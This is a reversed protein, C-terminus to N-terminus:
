NSFDEAAKARLAESQSAVDKGQSLAETLHANARKLAQVDVKGSGSQDALAQAERKFVQAADDMGSASSQNLSNGSNAAKQGRWLAILFSVHQRWAPLMHDIASNIKSLLQRNSEEMLEMSGIAQRGIQLSLSLDVLRANLDRLLEPNVQQSEMWRSGAVLHQEIEALIEKAQRDVRDIMVLDTMLETKSSEIQDALEDLQASLTKWEKELARLPKNGLIRGLWGQKKQDFESFDFSQLLDLMEGLIESSEALAKRGLGAMLKESVGGLARQPKIGFYAFSAEDTVDLMESVRSLAQEDSKETLEKLLDESIPSM